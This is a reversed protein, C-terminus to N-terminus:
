GHDTEGKLVSLLENTLAEVETIAATAVPGLGQVTQGYAAAHKYVEGKNPTLM